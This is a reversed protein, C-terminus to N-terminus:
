KFKLLRDVKGRKLFMPDFLRLHINTAVFGALAVSAKFLWRRSAKQPQLWKLIPYAAVLISIGLFLILSGLTTNIAIITTNWFLYAFWGLLVVAAAGIAWSVWRLKPNLKFIKFALSSGVDLQKALDARRADCSDPPERLLGELQQFDWQQRPADIDFDGWTAPPRGHPRPNNKQYRDNLEKFEYETMLYGSLMLSYAEVETFSDLDTRLAALKRQLDKDVKYETTFQSRAPPITPKKCSTWDVPSTALEKKLHVFFLGQIAHSNERSHLDEYQAERVRDMLISNARLPVGLITNSPRPQDDMQGSADSCLVLTCGEDLLGKAGQNTTARGGDVLRVTRDPYLGELVLPEFLGPVCASAAVAYGLPYEQHKKPAHEYWM